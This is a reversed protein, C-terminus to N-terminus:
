ASRWAQRRHPSDRKPPSTASTGATTTSCCVGTTLALAVDPKEDNDYDAATCAIPTGKVALGSAAVREFRGEGTARFLVITDPPMSPRPTLALYDVLGDGDADFFCGGAGIGGSGTTTAVRPFPSPAAAFTVPIAPATKGGAPILPEALSLPGQDGYSLSMAAAVKETTLRQFRELHTHAADANGMRQYARALGFEASVLFPDISLARTFSAVARDYQQLQSAMLGVFYASHADTPRLAAAKDFAALSQEADGTSKSLLGLNYWARVNQSDAATADTLLQKAPEYRQLNILAIAENVRATLLSADAAVAQEFYKLAPEFKQQNM